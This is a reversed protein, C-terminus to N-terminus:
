RRGARSKRGRRSTRETRQEAADKLCQPCEHRAGAVPVVHAGPQKAAQESLEQRAKCELCVVVHFHRPEDDPHRGCGPCREAEHKQWALALDQDHQPWTLFETLPKGAPGVVAM